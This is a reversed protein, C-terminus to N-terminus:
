LTKLLSAANTISRLKTNFFNCSFTCSFTHSFKQSIQKECFHTRACKRVVSRAGNKANKENKKKAAEYRPIDKSFELDRDLEKLQSIGSSSSSSINSISSSGSSSGTISTLLPELLLHKHFGWTEKLDCLQSISRSSSCNSCSSTSSSSTINPPELLLDKHFNRTVILDWLQSICNSSSSSSSNSLTM